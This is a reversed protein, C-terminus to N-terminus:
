MIVWVPVCCRTLGTPILGQKFYGLTGPWNPSAVPPHRMTDLITNYFTAYDSGNMVAPIGPSQVISTNFQIDISPKGIKGKKTTILIVGAAGRSGYIATAYADKLVEISEIDDPNLTALPSREFSNTRSYGRQTGSGPATFSFGQITSYYNTTNNTNDIGYMPVGDIVILPANGGDSITSVGRITIANAAGPVGSATSVHVGAIRNTLMDGVTLPNSGIIDPKYSGVSGILKKRDAKGYGIVVVETNTRVAKQLAIAPMRIATAKTTVKSVTIEKSEFGVSSVVLVIKEEGEPVTLSFRGANDTATGIATGKVKVSVGVLPQGTEEDLITGTITRKLNNSTIQVSPKTPEVQAIVSPLLGICCIFLLKLRRM